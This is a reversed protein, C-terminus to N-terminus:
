ALKLTLSNGTHGQFGTSARPPLCEGTASKEAIPEHGANKEVDEDMNMRFTKHLRERRPRPLPFSLLPRNNLFDARPLLGRVIKPATRDSAATSLYALRIPEWPVHLWRAFWWRTPPCHNRASVGEMSQPLRITELGEFQPQPEPREILGVSVVLKWFM